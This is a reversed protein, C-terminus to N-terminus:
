NNSEYISTKLIYPLLPKSAYEGRIGFYLESSNSTNGTVYDVLSCKYMITHTGAPINSIILNCNSSIYDSASATNFLAVCTNTSKLVNDVYGYVKYVARAGKSAGGANNSISINMYVSLVVYNTSNKFTYTFPSTMAQQGNSHTATVSKITKEYVVTQLSFTNELPIEWTNRGPIEVWKVGDWCYLHAIFPDVTNLNYVTLGTHTIKEASTPNNVLPSLSNISTLKVRPFILGGSKSTINNDSTASTPNTIVESKLDLLAGKNAKEGSGITVQSILPHHACFLLVNILKINKFFYKMKMLRIYILFSIIDYPLTTAGVKGIYYPLYDSNVYTGCRVISSVKAKFQITHNGTPLDRMKLSVFHTQYESTISLPFSLKSIQQYFVSGDIYCIVQINVNLGNNWTYGFQTNNSLSIGLFMTTNLLNINEINLKTAKTLIAESNIAPLMVNKVSDEVFVGRLAYGNAIYTTKTTRILIWKRGNWCYM